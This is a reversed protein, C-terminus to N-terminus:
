NKRLSKSKRKKRKKKDKEKESRSRLLAGTKKGKMIRVSWHARTRTEGGKTTAARGTERKITIMRRHLSAFKPSGKKTKAKDKKKKKKKKEKGKTIKSPRWTGQGKTQPPAASSEERERPTM